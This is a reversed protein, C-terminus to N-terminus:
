LSMRKAPLKLKKLFTGQNIQRKAEEYGEELIEDMAKWNLFSKRIHPNIYLDSIENKEASKTVSSLTLSKMIVNMASPVYKRDKGLWNKLVQKNNIPYEEELERVRTNGLDITVMTGEYQSRMIDAPLNNLVAGDVM